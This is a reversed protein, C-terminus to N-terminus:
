DSCSCISAHYISHQSYPDDSPRRRSAVIRSLPCRNLPSSHPSCKSYNNTPDATESVAIAKYLERGTIWRAPLSLQNRAPDQFLSSRLFLVCHGLLTFPTLRVRRHPRDQTLLHASLEDVARAWDGAFGGPGGTGGLGEFETSRVTPTSCRGLSAKGEVSEGVAPLGIVGFLWSSWAERSINGMPDNRTIDLKHKSSFRGPVFKVNLV